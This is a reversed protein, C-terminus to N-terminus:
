DARFRTNNVPSEPDFAYVKLSVLLLTPTFEETQVL